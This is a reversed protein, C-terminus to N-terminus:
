PRRMYGNSYAQQRRHEGSDATVRRGLPLPTHPAIPRLGSSYKEPILIVLLRRVLPLRLRIQAALQM